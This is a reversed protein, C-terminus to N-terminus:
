GQDPGSPNFPKVRKSNGGKKAGLPRCFSALNRAQNATIPTGDPLKQTRFHAELEPKKPYDDESIKFHRSAVVMLSIFPSLYVGDTAPPPTLKEEVQVIIRHPVSGAGDSVEGLALWKTANEALWFTPEIPHLAPTIPDWRYAQLRGEFLDDRVRNFGHQPLLESVDVYGRPIWDLIANM